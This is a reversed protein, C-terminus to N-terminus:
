KNHKPDYIVKNDKVYFHDNNYDDYFIHVISSVIDLVSGDLIASTEVDNEYDLMTNTYKTLTIEGDRDTNNLLTAKVLMEYDLDDLDNIPVQGENCTSVSVPSQCWIAKYKEEAKKYYETYDNEDVHIIGDSSKSFKELAEETYINEGYPLELEPVYVFCRDLDSCFEALDRYMKGNPRLYKLQRLDSYRVGYFTMTSIPAIGFENDQQYQYLASIAIGKKTDTPLALVWTKWAAHLNTEYTCWDVGDVSMNFYTDLNSAVENNINEIIALLALRDAMSKKIEDFM